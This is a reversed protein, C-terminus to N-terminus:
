RLKAASSPGTVAEVQPRELPGTVAYSAGGGSRQLRIDLTRSFSASGKLQYTGEASQLECGECSLSGDRLVLQGGLNSFSLPSGTTELVVHRLSGGSWRFSASGTASNRLAAADLGAMGITYQGDLTGTGWADHTLAAVQTMALGTMTGSGFYKPPNVAFDADWNGAHHGALVDARVDKLSITGANMEITSVVNLAVLEGILVRSAFLRGRAHLKMLASEDRQGIALLHYWPLSQYAPNLLQNLRTLTIEPTHLDFRV